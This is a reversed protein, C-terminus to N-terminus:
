LEEDQINGDEWTLYDSYWKAAKLFVDRLAEEDTMTFHVALKHNEKEGFTNHYIFDFTQVDANLKFEMPEQMDLVELITHTPNHQIINRTTTINTAEHDSGDLFAFEPLTFDLFKMNCIHSNYLEFEAKLLNIVAALM